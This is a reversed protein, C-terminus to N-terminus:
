NNKKQIQISNQIPYNNKPLKRKKTPIFYFNNNKILKKKIFGSIYNSFPLNFLFNILRINM